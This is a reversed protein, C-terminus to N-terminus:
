DGNETRRGIVFVTVLAVLDAGGLILGPVPYGALIVWVSAALFILAIVFGLIQGRNARRESGHVITSELERRHAGQAEFADIIKAAAGPCM